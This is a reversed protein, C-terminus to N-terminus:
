SKPAQRPWPTITLCHSLDLKQTPSLLAVNDVHKTAIDIVEAVDQFSLQPDASIFVVQEARTKFVEHLRKGLRVRDSDEMNLKIKGGQLVQIVITRRDDDGCDIQRATLVPLGASPALCVFVIPTLALFLAALPASNLMRMQVQTKISV